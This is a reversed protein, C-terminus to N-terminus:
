GHEGFRARLEYNIETDSTGTQVVKGGELQPHLNSYHGLVEEVSYSGDPDPLVRGNYTFTRKLTTIEAAM